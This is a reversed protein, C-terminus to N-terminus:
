SLWMVVNSAARTVTEPEEVCRGYRYINDRKEKKEGSITEFQLWVRCCEIGVIIIFIGYSSAAYTNFMIAHVWSCAGACFISISHSDFLFSDVTLGFSKFFWDRRIWHGIGYLWIMSTTPEIKYVHKFLLQMM